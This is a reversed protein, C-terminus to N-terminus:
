DSGRFDTLKSANVFFIKRTDPKSDPPRPKTIKKLERAVWSISPKINNKIPVTNKLTLTMISVM